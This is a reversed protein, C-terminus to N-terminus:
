TFVTVKYMVKEKKSNVDSIVINIKFVQKYKGFSTFHERFVEQLHLM